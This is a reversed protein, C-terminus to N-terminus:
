GDHGCSTTTATLFIAEASLSQLLRRGKEVLNQVVSSNWGTNKFCLKRGNRKPKKGGFVYFFATGGTNWRTKQFFANESPGTGGVKEWFLAQEVLDRRSLNFNKLQFVPVRHFLGKPPDRALPLCFGSTLPLGAVVLLVAVLGEQGDGRALTPPTPTKCNTRVVCYKGSCQKQRLRLLPGLSSLENHLFHQM